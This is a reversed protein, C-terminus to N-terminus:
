EYDEMKIDRCPLVQRGGSAPYLLPLEAAGYAAPRHNSDAERSEGPKPSGM